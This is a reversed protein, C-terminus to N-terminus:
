RPLGLLRPGPEADFWPADRRGAHKLEVATKPRGHWADGRDIEGAGRVAALGDVAGEPGAGGSEVLHPRHESTVSISAAVALARRQQVVGTVLRPGFGFPKEV